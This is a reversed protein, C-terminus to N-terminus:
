TEMHKLFDGSVNEFYDLVLQRRVRLRAQPHHWRRILEATQLVSASRGTQVLASRLLRLFLDADESDALLKLRALSVPKGDGGATGLVSGPRAKVNADLEATGMAIRALIEHKRWGSFPLLARWLRAFATATWVDDITASRRLAARGGRDDALDHWWISLREGAETTDGNRDLFAISPVGSM